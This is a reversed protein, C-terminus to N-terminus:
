IALPILLLFQISYVFFTILFGRKVSSKAINLTTEKKTKQM